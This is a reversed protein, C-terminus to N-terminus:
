GQDAMGSAAGQRRVHRDPSVASGGWEHSGTVSLIVVGLCARAMGLCPAQASGQLPEVLYWPPCAVQCSATHSDPPGQCLVLHTRLSM